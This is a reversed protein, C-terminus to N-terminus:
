RHKGVQLLVYGYRGRGVVRLDFREALAEYSRAVFYDGFRLKDRVPDLQFFSRAPRRMFMAETLVFSGQPLRDTAAVVRKLAPAGILGDQNANVIPLANGRERQSSCARSVSPGSSYLLRGTPTSYADLLRAGELIGQDREGDSLLETVRAATADPSRM